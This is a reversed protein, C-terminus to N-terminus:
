TKIGLSEALGKHEEDTIWEVKLYEFLQADNMGIRRGEAVAVAYAEIETSRKVYRYRRDFLNRGDMLQIIHVTEHVLDLYVIHEPSDRLHSACVMIAGKGDDVYMYYDCVAEVIVPIGEIFDENLGREELMAKIESVSSVSRTIEGLSHRGASVKRNLEIAIEEEGERRMLM